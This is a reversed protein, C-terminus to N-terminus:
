DNAKIWIREIELFNLDEPFKSYNTQYKVTAYLSYTINSIKIEKIYQITLTKNRNRLKKVLVNYYNSNKEDNYIRYGGLSIRDEYNKLLFIKNNDTSTDFFYNIDPIKNNKYYLEITELEKSVIKDLFELEFINENSVKNKKFFDIKSSIIIQTFTIFFIFIFVIINVYALFFGKKNQSYYSKM